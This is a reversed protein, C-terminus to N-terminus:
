GGETIVEVVKRAKPEVIIAQDAVMGCLYGATKPILDAITKPIPTLDVGEPVTAGVRPLFTAPAATSKSTQSKLSLYITHRQSQSLELAPVSAPNETAPATQAQAHMMPTMVGAAFLGAFALIVANPRVPKQM